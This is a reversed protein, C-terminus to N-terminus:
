QWVAELKQALEELGAVTMTPQPALPYFLEDPKQLYATQMGANAAGAVDWGHSSVFLVEHCPVNMKFAAWEYVERCPKYKKVAEASLVKEFYSVLGTLEMRELVLQSPANTLAALSYQQDALGSLGQQINEQLPLHRFLELTNAVDYDDVSRGFLRAAMKLTAGAIAAFNHFRETCNDVFCYQMFLEFWIRYGRKNDLLDTVKKEVLAMDLLTDYVDLIIVSPKHPPLQDNASQSTEM